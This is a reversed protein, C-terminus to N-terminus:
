LGVKIKPGASLLSPLLYLAVAVVILLPLGGGTFLGTLGKNLLGGATETAAGAVDQAVHGVNRVLAAPAKAIFVEAAKAGRDWQPKPGGPLLTRVGRSFDAYSAKSGLLHAASGGVYKAPASAIGLAKGAVTNGVGKLRRLLGM